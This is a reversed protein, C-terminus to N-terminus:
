ASLRVSAALEASTCFLGSFTSNVSDVSIVTIVQWTFPSRSTVPVFLNPSARLTANRRRFEMAPASPALHREQQGERCFPAFVRIKGWSRGCPMHLFAQFRRPPRSQRSPWCM